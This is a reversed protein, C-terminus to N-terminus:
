KRIRLWHDPRYQNRLQDSIDVSNMNNNCDDILNLRIFSVMQMEQHIASWVKRKKETWYISTATTSHLHVPKTDYVSASLFDPCVPYDVLKAAKTTRRRM